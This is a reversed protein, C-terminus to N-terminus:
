GIPCGSGASQDAVEVPGFAPVRHEGVGACWGLEAVGVAGVREAGDFSWPHILYGTPGTCAPMIPGPCKRNETTPSVMRLRLAARTREGSADFLLEFVPAWLLRDRQGFPGAAVGGDTMAQRKALGDFVGFPEGHQGPRQPPPRDQEFEFPEVVVDGVDAARHLSTPWEMRLM